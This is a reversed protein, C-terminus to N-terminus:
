LVVRNRVAHDEDRESVDLGGGVEKGVRREVREALNRLELIAGGPHLPDLHPLRRLLSTPGSPPNSCRLGGNPVLPPPSLSGGQAGARAMTARLAQDSDKSAIGVGRN